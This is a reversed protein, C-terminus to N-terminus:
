FNARLGWLFKRGFVEHEAQQAFIGVYRIGPENTLNNAQFYVQLRPNVAYQVSADLRGNAAWYEDGAADGLSDLYKSRYTYNVRASIGYKEYYGSLNFLRPSAGQVPVERKDPTEAKSKNFTANAEVGFGDIWGHLGIAHFLVSLPQRYGIEVGRISGSGGNITTSYEYLSRDIGGSNLIDSGFEQETYDFLVDSLKKYYGSVTFFGTSPMYWEYALNVGKSREPKADPNGGSIAEEEDNIEFNPRLTSYEPRAAGTNLSLRLKMDHHINWNVHFSPFVLTQSSSTSVNEYGNDGNVMATGENEVHEIRAGYVINGWSFSTTGMAYGAYIQERVWYNSTKINDEDITAAGSAIYKDMLDQIASNSFYQFGYSLDRGGKYPTDIALDGQTPVDFGAAQIDGPEATYTLNNRSTKTRRDYEGGFRFTTSTGFLEVDRDIDFKGTYADTRDLGDERSFSTLALETPSISTKAAGASYTKDANAVTTFLNIKPNSPDSFDYAISPRATPTKANAWDTGFPPRAIKDSRTFNGSWKIRWSGLNHEGSLTNSFIRQIDNDSDESSKIGVGTELGQMPTNGLGVNAYGAAADSFIFQYKNELQKDDFETFVSSFSLKNDADPRWELRGSYSTTSRQVRYFKDTYNKAWDQTKDDGKDAVSAWSIEYNDTVSDGAERSATLLIGLTDHAFRTSFVGGVNYQKGEGLENFGYAGDLLIKTHPYDFPSRPIIDINGAITEGPMDPTVEKKVVIRSALESPITDFRAQRGEPSVVNVGGISLTTWQNPAGQISVYRARGQDRQAAIGPLRTVAEAVNQDSYQGLSDSSLVDIISNSAKKLQLAAEQSEAIPRSGTVVIDSGAAQEGVSLVIRLRAPRGPVITVEQSTSSSGVYTVTVTHAGAPVDDFSFQGSSDAVAVSQSSDIRVQAGSAFAGDARVVVGTVRGADRGEASSAAPGADKASVPMTLGAQALAAMSVLGLSKIRHLNNRKM